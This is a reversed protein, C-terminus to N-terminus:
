PYVPPPIVCSDRSTELDGNYSVVCFEFNWTGPFLFGVGYSISTTSGDLKFNSGDNINRVYIAYGLADSVSSWELLIQVSSLNQVKLNKPSTSPAGAGVRAHRHGAPRGGALRGNGLDVWTQVSTSYRHGSKLNSITHSTGKAAYGEIYSGAVDQDLIIVQYRNVDSRPVADWSFRLGNSEPYVAIGSPGGATKPHATSSLLSSWDSADSNDGRARVQFEWTEGEVVWTMYSVFTSPYVAGESWWQTSGKQRMRIDYGRATAMRDWEVFFGEDVASVRFNGPTSLQRAPISAPPQFDEGQFYFSSKLVRAFAQAIYYEGVENPHLGDYGHPCGEPRCNVNSAVDVVSIPSEWRFWNPVAEALKSNYSNTNDVLDQRGELFSRHMVNGVLVNIDAKAERASQVIVGMDGLLGEPGQVSWGLDNFGLLLLLYAPQHEQVWGKIWDKDQHAQRGWWAAHASTEFDAAVDPSYIGELNSYSDQTEGDFLAPLPRASNPDAPGHTGQYPGVFSPQYGQEKLWQWLRYRWTYDGDAGHTISDGVIMFKPQADVSTNKSTQNQPLALVVSGLWLFFIVRRLRGVGYCEAM